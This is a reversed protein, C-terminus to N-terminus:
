LNTASQKPFVFYLSKRHKKQLLCHPSALDGHLSPGGCKLLSTVFRICDQKKQTVCYCHYDRLTDTM